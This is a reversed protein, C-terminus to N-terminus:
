RKVLVRRRTRPFSRYVNLMFVIAGLIFPAALWELDPTLYLAALPSVLTEQWNMFAKIFLVVAIVTVLFHVRNMSQDFEIRYIDMLRKYLWAYIIFPVAVILWLCGVPMLYVQGAFPVPLKMAPINVAISLVGGGTLVGAGIAFLKVPSQPWGFNDSGREVKGRSSTLEFVGAVEDRSYSRVANLVLICEGSVAAAWLMHGSFDVLGFPAMLNVAGAMTFALGVLGQVYGMGEGLPTTMSRRLLRHEIYFLSFIGFAIAFYGLFDHARAVGIAQSGVHSAIHIASVGSGVLCTIAAIRFLKQPPVHMRFAPLILDRVTSKTQVNM